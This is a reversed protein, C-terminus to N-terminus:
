ALQQSPALGVQLCCGAHHQIVPLPALDGVEAQGRVILVTARGQVVGASWALCDRDASRPRM